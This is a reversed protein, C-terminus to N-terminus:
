KSVTTKDKLVKTYYWAVGLIIFFPMLMDRHRFVTGINGETIAMLTIFIILYMVLSIIQYFKYRLSLCAGFFAIPILLYLLGTQLFAFFKIKNNIKNPLPEYLTHFIGKIIAGSIEIPGAGIVQDKYYYRDPFIKYNDGGPTVVYGAHISFLNELSLYRRIEKTFLSVSLFLALAVLMIITKKFINIRLSSVSSIGILLLLPYLFHTRLFEVSIAIALALILCIPNKTKQFKIMVWILLTLLFIVTPDRLATISFLSVSPLFVFLVMSIKGVKVNFLTKGIFYLLVGTLVSLMINMSRILLPAYGFITYLIGILYSFIGIQYLDMGPIKYQYYEAMNAYNNFIYEKINPAIDLRQNLLIRSIYWGAVSYNEGDPGLIDPHGPILYFYYYFVALLIRLTFGILVVKLIFPKDEEPLVYKLVCFIILSFLLALFAGGPLIMCIGVFIGLLILFMNLM